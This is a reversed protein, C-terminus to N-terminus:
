SLFQVKLTILFNRSSVTFNSMSVVLFGRVFPKDPKVDLIKYRLEQPWYKKNAEEYAGGKICM